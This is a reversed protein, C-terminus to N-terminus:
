LLMIAVPVAATHVPALQQAVHHHGDNGGHRQHQVRQLAFDAVAEVEDPLQLSVTHVKSSATYDRPQAM